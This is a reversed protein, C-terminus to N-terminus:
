IQYINKINKNNVIVKKKNNSEKSEELLTIVIKFNLNQPCKKNCKCINLNLGSINKIYRWILRDELNYIVNIKM